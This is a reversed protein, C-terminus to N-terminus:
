RRGHGRRADDAPGYAAVTITADTLPQRLRFGHVHVHEGDFDAREGALIARLAQVTERM